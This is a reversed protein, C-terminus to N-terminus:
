KVPFLDLVGGIYEDGNYPQCRFYYMDAISIRAAQDLTAGQELLLENAIAHQGWRASSLPAKMHAAPPAARMASCRKPLCSAGRRPQGIESADFLLKGGIIAVAV